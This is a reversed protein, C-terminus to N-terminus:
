NNILSPLVQMYWSMERRFTVTGPVQEKIVEFVVNYNGVDLTATQAPTFAVLFKAGTPNLSVKTTISANTDPDLLQLDGRYYTLDAVGDVSVEVIDTSDGRKVKISPAM